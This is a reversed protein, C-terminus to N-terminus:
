ANLEAASQYRREPDKELLRLVIRDSLPSIGVRRTGPPLPAKHCIAEILAPALAEQFPLEGTMMEYLVVGLAYLDTRADATGRLLQEPAMYPLTGAVVSEGTYVATEAAQLLPGRLTALGFDLVKVWGKPTVIVNESKLDGHVIGQEHAEELAEVIQCGISAAESEPLPGEAIMQAVTRGPIYEMVLFDVGEERDLDYITAIHPHNLRSLALAERRFRERAADDALAGAPLVKLAVDRGLREDRARHVIGMGGSAIREVVRYHSLTKGIM